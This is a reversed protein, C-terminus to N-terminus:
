LPLGGSSSGELSPGLYGIGCCHTPQFSLRVLGPGSWAVQLWQGDWLAGCGWTGSDDTWVEVKGREKELEVGQLLVTVFVM